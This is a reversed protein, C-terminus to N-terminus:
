KRKQKTKKANIEKSYDKSFLMDIEETSLSLGLEKNFEDIFRKAREYGRHPLTSKSYLLKLAVLKLIKNRLEIDCNHNYICNELNILNLNDNYKDKLIVLLEELTINVDAGIYEKLNRSSNVIGNESDAFIYFYPTKNFSSSDEQNKKYIKVGTEIKHEVVQGQENHVPQAVCGNAYYGCEM